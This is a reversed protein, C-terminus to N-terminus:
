FSLRLFQAGCCNGVISFPFNNHSKKRKQNFWYGISHWIGISFTQFSISCKRARKFVVPTYLKCLEPSWKGTANNLPWRVAGMANWPRIQINLQASIVAAFRERRENCRCNISGLQKPYDFRSSHELKFLLPSLVEGIFLFQFFSGVCFLLFFFSRKKENYIYLYYFFFTFTYLHTYFKLRDCNWDGSVQGGPWFYTGRGKENLNRHACNTKGIM